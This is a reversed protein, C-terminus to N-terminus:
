AAQPYSQNIKEIVIEDNSGVLGWKRLYEKSWIIELAKKVKKSIEKNSLLRDKISFIVKKNSLNELTKWLEPDEIMFSNKQILIDICAKVENKDNSKYMTSQIDWIPSNSMKNKFFMVQDNDNKKSIEHLNRAKRDKLPESKQIFETNFKKMNDSIAFFHNTKEPDLFNRWVRVDERKWGRQEAGSTEKSVIRGDKKWSSKDAFFEIYEPHMESLKMGIDWSIIGEDIGAILFFLRADGEPYNLKDTKFGKTLFYEYRAPDISKRENKKYLMLSLAETRLKPEYEMDDFSMKSIIKRRKRVNKIQKLITMWDRPSGNIIMNTVGKAGKVIRNVDSKFGSKAKKYEYKVRALTGIKPKQEIIEGVKGSTKEAVNEVENNEYFDAGKIDRSFGEANNHNDLNNLDLRNMKEERTEM